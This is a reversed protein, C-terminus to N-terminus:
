SSANSKRSYKSWKLRLITMAPGWIRRLAYPDLARADRMVRRKMSFPVHLSMVAGLWASVSDSRIIELTSEPVRVRELIWDIVELREAINLGGYVSTSSVNSGHSRFCNLPASLYAVSGELAMAAWLKWDGCLRLCEDAGGVRDYVSKRFVVASANPIPNSYVFYKECEERGVSRFNSSWRGPDRDVHYFDVFGDQQDNQHVKRSRCYALIVEPENLLVGMLQELFLKDAYDDSEAIWIFDGLALRVGKNWQSFTSGSNKDNFEIRVREDVSYESLISRSEDTSCDDLLIMEFDQYTQALVSEIRERLFRAHNYNPIVVSVKPNTPSIM